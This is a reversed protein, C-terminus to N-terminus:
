AEAGERGATAPCDTTVSVNAVFDVADGPATGEKELLRQLGTALLSVLRDRDGKEAEQKTQRVSVKRV